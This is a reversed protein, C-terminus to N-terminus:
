HCPGSRYAHPDIGKELMVKAINLKVLEERALVMFQAVTVAGSALSRLYNRAKSVNSQLQSIDARATM